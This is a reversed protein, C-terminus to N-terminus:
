SPGGEISPSAPRLSRTSRHPKGLLADNLIDWESSHPQYREMKQQLVLSYLCCWRLWDNQPDQDDTSLGTRNTGMIKATLYAFERVNPDRPDFEISLTAPHSGDDPPEGRLTGEASVWSLWDDPKASNVGLAREGTALNNLVAAAKPLPDTQGTIYTTKADGLRYAMM